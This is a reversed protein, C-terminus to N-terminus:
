IYQCEKLFTSMVKDFVTLMKKYFFEVVKVCSIQTLYILVKYFIIFTVGKVM